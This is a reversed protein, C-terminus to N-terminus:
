WFNRNFKKKKVFDKSGPPKTTQTWTLDHFKAYHMSKPSDYKQCANMSFGVLIEEIPSFSFM